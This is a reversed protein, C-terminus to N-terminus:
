FTRYHDEVVISNKDTFNLMGALSFLTNQKASIEPTAYTMTSKSM